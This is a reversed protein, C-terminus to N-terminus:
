LNQKKQAKAIEKATPNDIHFRRIGKSRGHMEFLVEGPSPLSELFEDGGKILDDPARSGYGDGASECTNAMLLSTHEIEKEPYKEETHTKYVVHM